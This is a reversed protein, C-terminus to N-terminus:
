VIRPLFPMPSSWSRNWLPGCWSAVWGVWDWQATCWRLLQFGVTFRDFFHPQDIINCFALHLFGLLIRWIHNPLCFIVIGPADTSHINVKNNEDIVHMEGMAMEYSVDQYKAGDYGPLSIDIFDVTEPKNRQLFQLFRIEKVCVPCLGDYLVQFLLANSSFHVAMKLKTNGWELLVFCIWWWYIIKCVRFLRKLFKSPHVVVLLACTHISTM